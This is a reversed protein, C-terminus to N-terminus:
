IKKRVGSSYATALREVEDDTPVKNDFLWSDIEEKKFFLKAGRKYHPIQKEQVLRYVYRKTYGTYQAVDDVSMLANPTKVERQSALLEEIRQLREDIRKLTENQEM